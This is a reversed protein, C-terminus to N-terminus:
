AGNERAESYRSIMSNSIYLSGRSQMNRCSQGRVEVYGPLDVFAEALMKAAEQMFDSTMTVVELSKAGEERRIPQEGHDLHHSEM